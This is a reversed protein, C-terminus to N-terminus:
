RMAQYYTIPAYSAGEQVAIYNDSEADYSYYKNAATGWDEPADEDIVLEYEPIVGIATLVQRVTARPWRDVYSTVVDVPLPPWDRPSTTSYRLDGMSWASGSSNGRSSAYWQVGDIPGDGIAIFKCAVGAQDTLATVTEPNEIGDGSVIMVPGTWPGYRPDTGLARMLYVPKGPNAYVTSAAPYQTAEHGPVALFYLFKNRDSPPVTEQRYFTNPSYSELPMYGEYYTNPTFVTDASTRVHYEDHEDKTFYRWYHSAWDDPVETLPEQVWASVWENINSVGAKTFEGAYSSKKYVMFWWQHEWMERDDDDLVQSMVRYKIRTVTDRDDVVTRIKGRVVASSDLAEVYALSPCTYFMDDSPPPTPPTPGPGPDDGGGEKAAKWLKALADHIAMRIDRGYYGSLLTQLEGDINNNSAM